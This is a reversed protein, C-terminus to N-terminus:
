TSKTSPHLMRKACVNLLMEHLSVDTAFRTLV